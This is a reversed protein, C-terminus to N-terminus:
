HTMPIKGTSKWALQRRETSTERMHAILVVYPLPILSQGVVMRPPVGTSCCSSSSSSSARAGAPHEGSRSEVEGRESEETRTRVPLLRSRWARGVEGLVDVTWGGARWAMDALWCNSKHLPQLDRRPPRARLRQHVRTVRSTTDPPSLLPPCGYPSVWRRLRSVIARDLGAGGVANWVVGGARLLAMDEISRGTAPGFAAPAAM